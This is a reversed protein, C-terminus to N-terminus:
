MQPVPEESSTNANQTMASIKWPGSFQEPTPSESKDQDKGPKVQLLTSRRDRSTSEDDPHTMLNQQGLQDSTAM